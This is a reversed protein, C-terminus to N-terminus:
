GIGKDRLNAQICLLLRSRIRELAKYIGNATRGVRNGIEEVSINNGYRMQLISKEKEGLKEICENLAELRDQIQESQEIQTEALQEIMETSFALKGKRRSRYYLLVEYRAITCVWRVFAEDPEQGVYHFDQLKRLAAVCTNQFVDETGGTPLMLTTIFGRIRTDYTLVLRVFDESDIKTKSQDGEAM